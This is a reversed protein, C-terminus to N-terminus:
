KWRFTELIDVVRSEFDVTQEEVVCETIPTKEWYPLGM